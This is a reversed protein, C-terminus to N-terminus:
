KKKQSRFYQMVLAKTINNAESSLLSLYLFHRPVNM